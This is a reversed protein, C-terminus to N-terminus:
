QDSTFTTLAAEFIPVTWVVPLFHEIPNVIRPRTMLLTKTPEFFHFLVLLHVLKAPPIKHHCHKSVLDFSFGGLNKPNRVTWGQIEHFPPRPLM